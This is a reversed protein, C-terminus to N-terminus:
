ELVLWDVQQGRYMTCLMEQANERSGCCEASDMFLFSNDIAQDYSIGRVVRYRTACAEDADSAQSM